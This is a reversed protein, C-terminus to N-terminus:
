KRTVQDKIFNINAKIEKLDGQITSVDKNQEAVRTELTAIRINQASLDSAFNGWTVAMGAIFVILFWNERLTTLLDGNKKIAM